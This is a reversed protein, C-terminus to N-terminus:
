WGSLMYRLKFFLNDALPKTLLDAKQETTRCYSIQIAGRKVHSCFHHYKLAIHKTRPTFKQSTAMTICSQNDEHVKCVFTPTRVHIPFVKNIEKLLTILPIVDQLAQSLAIYEAKATSLAIETQLCSVWLIPCNAYMIIYGTRSLVNDANNADAQSWGGAFEADVYCELGKSKDPKYIIGRKCTDLLYQGIRMISKEHSLMPNNSFRATQHVAMSIEPRSTNQLYSLMGVATRYKWTYKRPKGDLDRHLLGKAVPMSTFNTDSEFENNCLSLFNLIRDILFPQSLEFSNDDLHTIEVGLLKNVGGEDTLKFNEPGSQMSSILRDISNRSPGIIICDDVYTLLVMNEKLYLCPNIESPIFGRDM